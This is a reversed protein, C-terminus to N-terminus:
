DDRMESSRVGSYLGGRNGRAVSRPSNNLVGFLLANARQRWKSKGKPSKASIAETAELSFLLKALLTSLQARESRTLM